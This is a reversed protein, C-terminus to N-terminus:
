FFTRGAVAVAAVAHGTCTTALLITSCCSQSFVSIFPPRFFSLGAQGAATTVDVLVVVVVVVVRTKKKKSSEKAADDDNPVLPFRVRVAVHLRRLLARAVGRPEHGPSAAAAAAARM